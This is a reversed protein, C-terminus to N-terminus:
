GGVGRRTWIVVVGCESGPGQFRAPASLRTSYLEMAEIDHPGVLEEETPWRSPDDPSFIGGARAMGGDVYILPLCRWDVGSRARSFQIRRKTSEASEENFTVPGIGPVRMLLASTSPTPLREIDERVVFRGTTQVEREYFGNRELAPVTGRVTVVMEELPIAETALRIEVRRTGRFIEMPEGESLGYGLRGTRVTFTGGDGPLLLVRGRGDSLAEAAVEGGPSVLRVLAGEVPQRTVADVVTGVLAPRGDGVSPTAVSESRPLTLTLDAEVFGVAALAVVRPESVVPGLQAVLQLSDGGEGGCIWFGGDPQTVASLPVSGRAPAGEATVVVGGLPEGADSRVRGVVVGPPACHLALVSTLGPVALSVRAEGEPEVVVEQWAADVGLTDLVPHNFTVWYTGPAVDDIIFAGQADTRTIRSRGGLSVEANTLSRGAISDWVTGTVRGWPLDARWEVDRGRVQLVESGEEQVGTVMVREVLKGAVFQRSLGMVPAWIGWDRVIWRGDSLEAFRVEGRAQDVGPRRGLRTYVFEVRELRATARDVWLVGEIDAVDRGRVPDFRLGVMGPQDEAGEVVAFCHTALFDDSLLVEADPGYYYIFEGEDVVYGKSALEGPPLTRVSNGGYASSTRRQEDLVHRGSPDLTRTRRVVQFQLGAERETWRAADLAKRVEGWLTQTEGRPDDDLSCRRREAAVELGELRVASALVNLDFSLTMGAPLDVPGATTSAFGIREVRLAYRGAAPARLSFRGDAATLFLAGTWSSDAMLRVMAGLVPQGTGQDRVTGVVTQAGLVPPALVLVILM